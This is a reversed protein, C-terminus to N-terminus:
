EPPMVEGRVWNAYPAHEPMRLALISMATGYNASRPFVRDNWTGDDDRTRFLIERFRRRYEAREREPLLEIAEAAFYHAYYFYYPAIGYPAVHTGTQKRRKELWEWHVIFADIASRVEEVSGRGGLVLTCEAALMRGVSGPVSEPSREGTSGAYQYAGTATRAAELADLGGTVIDPNVDFGVETAVFLAHLTSATMFPSPRGPQDFGGRRSYNWGGHEPIATAEIGRIFFRSALEVENALAEPVADARKLEALYWLGYAYGWGRVDYRGPIEAFGMLPNDVSSVIFRTTSELAAQRAADDARGPAALLSMGVISSGGVRYGIPITGRVRYVGEYPWETGGKGGEQMELLRAVGMAVAEDLDPAATAQADSQAAVPAGPAALLSLALLCISCRIM